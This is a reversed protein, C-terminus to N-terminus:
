LGGGTQSVVSLACTEHSWLLLKDDLVGASSQSPLFVLYDGCGNGAVAIAALPFGRWERASRNERVIDNATRSAKKRDSTDFVPFVTWDEEVLFLEGGNSSLLRRRWATPLSVGLAREATEICKIDTTFAM